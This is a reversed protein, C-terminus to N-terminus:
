QRVSIPTSKEFYVLHDFQAPLGIYIPAVGMMSGGSWTRRGSTWPFNDFALGSMYLSDEGLRTLVGSLSASPSAPVNTVDVAGQSNKASFSGRNFAFGLATYEAGFADLLHRGMNPSQKSVHANHAWLITKKNNWHKKTWIANDAMASDRAAYGSTSFSVNQLIMNSNQLAWEWQRIPDSASPKAAILKSKASEAELRASM